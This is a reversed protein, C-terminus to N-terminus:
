VGDHVEMERRFSKSVRFRVTPRKPKEVKEYRDFGEVGSKDFVRAPLHTKTFSGLGTLQVREGNSIAEKMEEIIREVMETDFGTREALDRPTVAPTTPM